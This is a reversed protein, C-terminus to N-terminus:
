IYFSYVLVYVSWSIIFINWAIWSTTDPMEEVNQAAAASMEWFFWKVKFGTGVIVTIATLIFLKPHGKGYLRIAAIIPLVV